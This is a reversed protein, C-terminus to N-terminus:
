LPSAKEISFPNERNYFNRPYNSTDYLDVLLSVKEQVFNYYRMERNVFARYVAWNMYDVVQLCVESPPTQCFVDFRSQITTSWKSEFRAVGKRIAAELPGQRKRSGRQSFYIRNRSYRHLTNQFLRSVLEDYLKHESGRLRARFLKESKRALVFQAKFDLEIISKFVLHRVEPCDDKAHFGKQTRSISPIAQLYTDSNVRAHLEQIRRRIPVPDTTEIFGLILVQSCGEQGVIFHGRRDYFTADGSEDVFFYNTAEIPQKM